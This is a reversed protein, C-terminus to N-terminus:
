KIQEPFFVPIPYMFLLSILITSHYTVGDRCAQVIAYDKYTSIFIDYFGARKLRQRYSKIENCQM